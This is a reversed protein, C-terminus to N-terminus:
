YRRAAVWDTESNGKVLVPKYVPTILESQGDINTWVQRLCNVLSALVGGGPANKKKKWASTGGQM